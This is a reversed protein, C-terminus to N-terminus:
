EIRIAGIGRQDPHEEENDNSVQDEYSDRDDDVPVPEEAEDDFILSDDASQDDAHRHELHNNHEDYPAAEPVTQDQAQYESETEYFPDAEYPEDIVQDDFEEEIGSAVARSSFGLDLPQKFFAIIGDQVEIVTTLEWGSRGYENLREEVETEDLFSGGLLGEKKLEFHVTKYSWKM